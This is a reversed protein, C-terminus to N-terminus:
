SGGGCPQEAGAAAGAVCGIDTVCIAYRRDGAFTWTGAAEGLDDRWEGRELLIPNGIRRRAIREVRGELRVSGSSWRERRTGCCSREVGSIAACRPDCRQGTATGFIADFFGMQLSGTAANRGGFRDCLGEKRAFQPSRLTESRPRSQLMSAARGGVSGVSFSLSAPVSSLLLASVLVGRLM